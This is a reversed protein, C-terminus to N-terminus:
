QDAFPEAGQADPNMGEVPARSRRPRAPANAATPTATNAGLRTALAIARAETFRLHCYGHAGERAYTRCAQERDSSFAAQEQVIPRIDGGRARQTMIKYNDRVAKDAVGRATDFEGAQPLLSAAGPGWLGSPKTECDAATFTCASGSGLPTALVSGDLIEFRLPCEASATSFRSVGQARGEASLPMPKGGDLKVTCNETPQSIKTGPLTMQATYASGSREIKLSGNLGNLLLDQGAVNDEAPVRLVVPQRPQAPVSPRTEAGEGPAPAGPEVPQPPQVPVNRPPQPPRAARGIGFLEEFFNQARAPTAPVVALGALVLLAGTAVRLPRPKKAFVRESVPLLMLRDAERNAAVERVTHM